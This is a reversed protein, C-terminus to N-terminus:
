VRFVRFLIYGPSSPTNECTSSIQLGPESNYHSYTLAPTANNDIIKKGTPQDDEENEIATADIPHQANDAPLHAKIFHRPMSVAEERLSQAYLQTYGCSLFIFLPLFFGTVVRKM